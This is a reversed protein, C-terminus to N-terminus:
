GFINKEKRDTFNKNNHFIVKEIKSKDNETIKIILDLRNNDLLKVKPEIVAKIMGSRKYIESIRILDKILHAKTYVERETLNMEQKLIEEKLSKNGTFEIKNIIPNETVIIEIGNNFEKVTVDSFLNTNYLEKLIKNLYRSNHSKYNAFYAKITESEIRSNGSINVNFQALAFNCNLILFFFFIYYKM